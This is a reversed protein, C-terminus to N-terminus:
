KLGFVKDKQIYIQGNELYTKIDKPNWSDNLFYIHSELEGDSNLLWFPLNERLKFKGEKKGNEDIRFFDLEKLDTSTAKVLELEITFKVIPTETELELALVCM